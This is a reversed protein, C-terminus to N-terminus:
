VFPLRVLGIERGPLPPFSYQLSHHVLPPMQVLGDLFLVQRELFQCGINVLSSIWLHDWLSPTAINVICFQAFATMKM